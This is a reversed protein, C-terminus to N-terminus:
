HFPLRVSTFERPKKRSKFPFNSPPSPSFEFPLHPPESDGCLMGVIEKMTPRKNPSRQLCLLAITICLLAQERDLLQINPDVLDLLKGSHALQRAWSVLNAREFESMPSATVQLPRRGSVLVLLLVGFSYVDCKESLQGGGGYEPAIYCVTGRMSPTSSVGGSKPIDGSAFDQSSRRGIRFEGSFSDLWWDISSRSGRSKRRKREPTVEEDRQWWMEGGGRLDRKKKKKALEECFEEKWWERPKRINKKEKRIREEDLSAWWELKKRQKQQQGGKTIIDEAASTTAIWDKKPREKRIESGIWEMVYDKIRGSDSGGNVNEQKWWWDRGSQSTGKGIGKLIGSDVSVGDLFGESVSVKEMGESPVGVEPSCSEGLQDVNIVVEETVVSENGELISWNEEVNEFVEGKGGKKVREEDEIFSEVVHDYKTLSQALGFDAIKADFNYDLLINSPKIDGHVIPPDCSYHLYEVGKAISSIVDFRKRWQMLEPCKRDLLADQLSGNRMYEYVLVLRRRRRHSHEDSSFGLIPVVYHCCTTDIRSALSLENHFEREGQLSGSPDMLKVAVEQGSPLVGKYVSGFGGQGLRNAVAFSGTARRLLTYSFKHPPPPSKLDTPVTRNRSVKRYIIAAVIFFTLAFAAAIVSPILSSHTHPHHPPPPLYTTPFVPLPTLPPSFPNEPPM